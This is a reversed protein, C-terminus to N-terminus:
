FTYRGVLQIIRPRNGLTNADVLTGFNASGFTLVPTGFVVLNFANLFEGRIQVKHRGEGFSINKIISLDVNKYNDRRIDNYTRAATGFQYNTTDPASFVAPNFVSLGQRALEGFNGPMANDGSIRNPRIAAQGVGAQGTTPFGTSNTIALPAGRQWVGTGSIQFGGLLANTLGNWNKGFRKGKGFPLEYTGSLTFRHPVDLTSYSYEEEFDLADDANTADAGRVNSGVGGTDLLKSRVYNTLLSFGNSFRKQLNVQLAHYDSFGIHPNFHTVELYQPFRRLLQARPITAGSSVVGGSPISGQLPNPVSFNLFAAVTACAAAGCANPQNFNNRAYELVSLPLQNLNVNRSPLNRGASGVYAVDLVLNKALERQIVLNWQMVYPNPRKPEVVAGLSTGLGTLSEQTNGTAPRTGTPFPDALFRTSSTVQVNTSQTFSDSFSTGLASTGELSIPLFFMGFGGRLTTKPNISYAFGIRPAFRDYNTETQAGEPFTLLGTL